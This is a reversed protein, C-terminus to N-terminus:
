RITFAISPTEITAATEIGEVSFNFSARIQFTGTPSPQSTPSNWFSLAKWFSPLSMGFTQNLCGDPELTVYLLANIWAVPEELITGNSGVWTFAFHFNRELDGANPTSAGATSTTVNFTQIGPELGCIRYEIMTVTKNSINRLSFSLTLNDSTQYEAKDLSLSLQLPPSTISVSPGVANLSPRSAYYAYVITSLAVVTVLIGVITKRTRSGFFGKLTDEVFTGVPCYPQM